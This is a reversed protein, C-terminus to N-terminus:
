RSGPRTTNAEAAPLLLPRLRQTWLAYGESSLHLGDFQYLKKIPQGDEDLFLDDTDVQTCLPHEGCLSRTADNAARVADIKEWAYPTATIAIYYVRTDARAASIIDLLQSLGDRIVPVAQMPTDSVNIDNSGVFIVVQPPKHVTILREAFHLVDGMRAGGFGRQIVDLPAMDEALSHWLRISSSGVFVTADEAPPNDRQDAEFGEVEPTWVTPDDSATRDMENFVSMGIVVVCLVLALGFLALLKKM